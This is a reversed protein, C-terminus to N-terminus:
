SLVAKLQEASPVRGTLKVEGNVVLAPTSMVGHGLIAAMDTVKEITYDLGLERAARDVHEFLVRCKACGPGLVQITTM